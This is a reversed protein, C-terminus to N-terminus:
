YDYGGPLDDSDEEKNKKFLKRMLGTDEIDYNKDDKEYRVNKDITIFTAGSDTKVIESNPIQSEFYRQFIRGRSDSAPRFTFGRVKKTSVLHKIIQSLTAMIRYIEVKDTKYKSASITINPDDVPVGKRSRVSFETDWYYYPHDLVKDFGDSGRKPRDGLVQFMVYPQNLHFSVNIVVKSGGKTKFEYVALSDTTISPRWEYPQATGEGIETLLSERIITKILNM